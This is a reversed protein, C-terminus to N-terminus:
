QGAFFKWAAAPADFKGTPGLQAPFTVAPQPITHGGGRVTYLVVQAQGSREWVMRDVSTPDEASASSVTTETAPGAVGIDTAFAAASAPASLVSGGAAHPGGVYPNSRDETGKILMVRPKGSRSCTVAEPPPLSAGVAAIAAVEEPAEWGMRMAMHGGNSFGFVFVKRADSGFQTAAARIIGRLFAVDDVQASKYPFDRRCDNWAGQVADPYAIVFGERDALREFGHGTARRMMAGRMQYGHLVVLLPKGRVVAEPVYWAYARDQDGVRMTAQQLRGEANATPPPTQAALPTLLLSVCVAALCRTPIGM